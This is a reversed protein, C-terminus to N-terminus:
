FDIDIFNIILYKLLLVPISIITILRAYLNKNMKLGSTALVITTIAALSIRYYIWRRFSKLVIFLM